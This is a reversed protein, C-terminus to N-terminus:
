KTENKYIQSLMPSAARQHESKIRKPHNVCQRQLLLMLVACPPSAQSMWLFSHTPWSTEALMLDHKLALKGVKRYQTVCLFHNYKYSLSYGPGEQSGSPNLLPRDAIKGCRCDIRPVSTPFSQGLSSSYIVTQKIGKTQKAHLLKCLVKVYIRM